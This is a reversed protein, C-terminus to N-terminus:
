CCGADPFIYMVPEVDNSTTYVDVNKWDDKTLIISSKSSIIKKVAERDEAIVVLGGSSHYNCTLKEVDEFIYIKM